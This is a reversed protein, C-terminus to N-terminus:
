AVPVRLAAGGLPHTTADFFRLPEADLRGYVDAQRAALERRPGPRMAVAVPRGGRENLVDVLHQDQESLSSGFIV